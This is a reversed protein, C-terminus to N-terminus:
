PLAIMTLSLLLAFGLARGRPAKLRKLLIIPTLLLASLLFRAAAGLLPPIQEALSDAAVWTTGWVVGLAALAIWYKRGATATRSPMFYSTLLFKAWFLLTACM